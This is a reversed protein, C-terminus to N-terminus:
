IIESWLLLQPRIDTEETPIQEVIQFAYCVAVTKCGSHKELYRDYYGGGYGIRERKKTFVAGPMVILCDGETEKPILMTESDPEPIHYAGETLVTGTQYAYFDMRDEKVRPLWIRKGDALMTDAYRFMDVENQIPVYLCIDTAAKYQETDFFARAIQASAAEVVQAALGKRRMLVAKRLQKKQEQIESM